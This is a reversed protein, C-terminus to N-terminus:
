NAMIYARYGSFDVYHTFNYKLALQNNQNLPVYRENARFYGTLQGGRNIRDELTSFHYTALVGNSISISGEHWEEQWYIYAKLTKDQLITKKSRSNSYNMDFAFSNSLTLMLTLTLFLIIKKM